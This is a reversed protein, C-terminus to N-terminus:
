KVLCNNLSMPKMQLILYISVYNQEKTMKAYILCYDSASNSSKCISTVLTKTIVEIYLSQRNKERNTQIWCVDFRDSM